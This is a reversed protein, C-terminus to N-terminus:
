TNSREHKEKNKKLIQFILIFIIWLNKLNERKELIRKIRNGISSAAVQTALPAVGLMATGYGYLEDETPLIM